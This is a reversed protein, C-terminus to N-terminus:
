EPHIARRGGEKGKLMWSRIHSRSSATRWKKFTRNTSAGSCRQCTLGCVDAGRVGHDVEPILTNRKAHRSGRRYAPSRPAITRRRHSPREWRSEHRDGPGIQEVQRRASGSQRGAALSPILPSHDEAWPRRPWLVQRTWSEAKSKYAPPLIHFLSLSELCALRVPRDSVAANRPLPGAILLPPM